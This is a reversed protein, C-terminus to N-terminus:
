FHSQLPGATMAAKDRKVGTIFGQLERIKSTSVQSFWDDLQEGTRTHLMHVFKQVLEYAQDVEPHLSRLVALTEKEEPELQVTQRLFLFMAQRALVPPRAPQDPAEQNKPGSPAGRTCRKKRGEPFSRALQRYM